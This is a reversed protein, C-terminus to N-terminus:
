KAAAGQKKTKADIQARLAAIEKDIRDARRWVTVVFGAVMVWIFGYAVGVLNKAEFGEGPEVMQTQVNQWGEDSPSPAGGKPADAARASGAAVALLLAVAFAALKLIKSLARM